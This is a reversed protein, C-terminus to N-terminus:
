SEEVLWGFKKTKSQANKGTSRAEILIGAPEFGEPLTLVGEVVQFYKFRLRITDGEVSSSLASLAYEKDVGAEAGSLTVKLSGSLLNHRSALQKVVIKYSYRRPEGASVLEVSGITLGSAKENPAMLGRYFNNEETLRAIEDNLEVITLRVDESAQRDVEAALKSNELMQEYKNAESQYHALDKKLVGLESLAQQKEQGGFNLGLWYSAAIASSFLLLVIFFWVFLERLRYEVVKIRKKKSGAVLAM